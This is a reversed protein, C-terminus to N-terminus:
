LVSDDGGRQTILNGSKPSNSARLARHSSIWDSILCNRNCEKVVTRVVHMSFKYHQM